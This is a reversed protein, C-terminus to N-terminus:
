KDYCKDTQYKSEDYLDMIELFGKQLDTWDNFEFFKIDKNYTLISLTEQESILLKYDDIYQNFVESYNSFLEKTKSKTGGFLGGPVIKVPGGAMKNIRDQVEYNIMVGNGRLTFFQHTEIKEFIKDLFIKSHVLNDKMYDRWRDHCSTGFLGADLWIINGESNCENLLFKFKNNIVEIYNKVSYVREYIEGREVNLERIPNIKELYYDSNLEEIKITVNPTHFTKDVSYKEYTEKNTYIVYNYEPFILAKITEILLPFSKYVMGGREEIYRLEYMSTVITNTGNTM